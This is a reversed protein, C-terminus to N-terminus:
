TQADPHAHTYRRTNRGEKHTQADRHKHPHVDSCTQRHAHTDLQTQRHTDTKPHTNLTLAAQPCPPHKEASRGGAAGPQTICYGNAWYRSPAPLSRSTFGFGFHRTPLSSAGGGSESPLYVPHITLWLSGLLLSRQSPTESVKEPHKSIM